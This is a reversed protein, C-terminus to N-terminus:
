LILAAVLIALLFFAVGCAVPEKLSDRDSSIFLESKGKSRRYVSVATIFCLQSLAFLGFVLLLSLWVM